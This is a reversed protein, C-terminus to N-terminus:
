LSEPPDNTPQRNEKEYLRQELESIKELAATLRSNVLSHITALQASTQANSEDLKEAVAKAAENAKAANKNATLVGFVAPGLPALLAVLIGLLPLWGELVVTPTENM